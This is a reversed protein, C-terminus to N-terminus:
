GRVVSPGEFAGVRGGNREVGRDSPFGVISIGYATSAQHPQIVTGLRPDDPNGMAITSFCCSFKGSKQKEYKNGSEVLNM